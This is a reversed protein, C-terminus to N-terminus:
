VRTADISQRVSTINRTADRTDETSSARTPPKPPGSGPPRFDRTYKSGHKGYNPDILTQFLLYLFNMFSWFWGFINFPSSQVVRGDQVYVM